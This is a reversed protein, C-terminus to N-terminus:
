GAGYLGAQAAKHLLPVAGLAVTALYDPRFRQRCVHSIMLRSVANAFICGITLYFLHPTAAIVAAAPPHWLWLGAALHILLMPAQRGLAKVISQITTCGEDPQGLLRAVVNWTNLVCAPV